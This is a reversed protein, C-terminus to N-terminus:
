NMLFCADWAINEKENTLFGLLATAIGSAGELFNSELIYKNEVGSYAKFGGIGGSEIGLELTKEVWYISAINFEERRTEMYFRNFIHAIGSSGHCFGADIVNDLKLDRRETAKVMINIAQQKWFENHMICGSRWLAIANGLDGYCWGLRSQFSQNNANHQIEIYSPFCCDSNYPNKSRLLYNVSGVLMQNALKNRPFRKLTEALVIIKSSLGHSLSLNFVKKDNKQKLITEWVFIDDEKYANQCLLSLWKNIFIEDAGNTALLGYIIGDSGHLFDFEGQKAYNLASEKLAVNVDEFNDDIELIQKQKLHKICWIVGALGSCFTTNYNGNNIEDFIKILSKEIKENYDNTGLYRSLYSYFLVKGAEGTYLGVSDIHQPLEEAIAKVKSLIKEKM